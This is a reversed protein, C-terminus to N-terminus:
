RIKYQIIQRLSDGKFVVTKCLRGIRDTTRSGYRSLIQEASLNTTIFLPKIKQEAKDIIFNFGEFKEGYNNAFPELGLEDIVPINTNKLYSEGYYM